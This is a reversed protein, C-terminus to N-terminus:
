RGGRRSRRDQARPEQSRRLTHQRTGRAWRCGGRSRRGRRGPRRGLGARRLGGHRGARFWSIMARGATGVPGPGPPARSPACTPITRSGRSTTSTGPRASCWTAAVAETAAKRGVRRSTPSAACRRPGDGGRGARVEVDVEDVFTMGFLEPPRRRRWGRLNRTTSGTVTQITWRPRWAPVFGGSTRSCEGEALFSQLEDFAPRTRVDAEVVCRDAARLADSARGDEQQVPRCTLRVPLRGEVERLRRRQFRDGSRSWRGM